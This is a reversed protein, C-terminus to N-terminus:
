NPISPSPFGLFYSIKENKAMNEKDKCCLSSEFLLLSILSWYWEFHSNKLAHGTGPLMSTPARWGCLYISMCARPVWTPSFVVYKQAFHSSRNTSHYKMELRRLSEHPLDRKGLYHSTTWFFEFNKIHGKAIGWKSEDYLGIM